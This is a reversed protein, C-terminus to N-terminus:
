PIEKWIQWAREAQLILMEHGNKIAAGRSKGNQLFVTEPPNYILDYLLHHPTLYEYPLDPCAQTNPEMGLPTTNIILPYYELILKSLDHYAYQNDDPNRSVMKYEIGLSKLVFCVAKSAGGTGLVLARRHYSKLLPVLSTEFGYIDTNYGYFEHNIKKITNVAQIEDADRHLHHLYPIVAEKYPITVNLGILNDNREWLAPLEDIRQLPFNEYYHDDLGMAKFKNSFYSKSFSHSLPYGILGLLINFHDLECDM